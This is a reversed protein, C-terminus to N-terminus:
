RLAEIAEGAAHVGSWYAGHCMGCAHATAEGAFFLKDDVPLPLLRRQDYQGPRAAAYSGRTWPYRVWATAISRGAWKRCDNGLIDAARDIAFARCAADGEQEMARSFRGGMFVTVVHSSVLNVEVYAGHAHESWVQHYGNEGATFVEKSFHVGIKNEAGMPIAHFADSKWDPLRPVFQLREEALVGNSVTCIVCRSCIDGRVTTVVVDRGSWDIREVASGLSVPFRRGFERVLNGYGGPAIHSSAEEVRHFFDAASAEDLDMPATVAMMDAYPVAYPSELDVLESIPRDEGAAVSKRIAEDCEGFYRQLAALKSGRLLQGDYVYRGPYEYKEIAAGTKRAFEIYPNSEERREAAQPGSELYACGRDFWTGPAIEVSHARGGIRDAAEVLVFTVGADTLSAAAALGASGAGVIVVDTHEPM